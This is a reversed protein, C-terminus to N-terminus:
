LGTIKSWIKFVIQHLFSTNPIISWHSVFISRKFYIHTLPRYKMTWQNQRKDNDYVKIIQIFQRQGPTNIGRWASARTWSPCNDTHVSRVPLSSLRDLGAWSCHRSMVKITKEPDYFKGWDFLIVSNVLIIIMKKKSVGRIINNIIMLNRDFDQPILQYKCLYMIIIM